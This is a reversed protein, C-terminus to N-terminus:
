IFMCIKKYFSLTQHKSDLYIIKYGGKEIWKNLLTNDIDLEEDIDSNSTAIYFDYEDKIHEVLNAVSQIPGGAKYAPLFWDICILVKRKKETM